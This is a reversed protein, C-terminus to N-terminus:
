INEMIYKIEKIGIYGVKSYEFPNINHKPAYGKLMYNYFGAYIVSTDTLIENEWKDFRSIGRFYLYLHMVEHALISVVTDSDYADKLELTITSSGVGTIIEGARDSYVTDIIKLRLLNGNIGVHDAISDLVERLTDPNHCDSKLRNELEIALTFVTHVNKDNKKLQSICSLLLENTLKKGKPVPLKVTKLIIVRVIFVALGIYPLYYLITLLIDMPM